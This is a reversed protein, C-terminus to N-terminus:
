NNIISWEAVKYNCSEEKSVKQQVWKYPTLHSMKENKNNKKKKYLVAEISSSNNFNKWGSITAM